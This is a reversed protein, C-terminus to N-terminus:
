ISFNKIANQIDAYIAIDNLVFKNLFLDNGIEIDGNSNKVIREPNQSIYAKVKDKENTKELILDAVKPCKNEIETFINNTSKNEFSIGLGVAAFIIQKETDYDTYSEM